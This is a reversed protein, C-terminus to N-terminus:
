GGCALPDRRGSELGLRGGGRGGGVVATGQVANLAALPVPPVAQGRPLLLGVLVVAGELYAQSRKGHMESVQLLVCM